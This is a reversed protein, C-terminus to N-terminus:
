RQEGEGRGRKKDEYMARDARAIWEEPSIGEAADTQVLGYSFPTGWQRRGAERLERLRVGAEAQVCGPMLVLFEDGGYRALVDNPRLGARLHTSFAQLYQDGAQHGLRDNIQKLGDLDLFALSFAEGAELMVNMNSLAYRRTYAGTLADVYAEREMRATRSKQEAEAEKLRLREEKLYTSRTLHYIHSAFLVVMLLLLINSAMLFLIALIAPLECIAPISDLLVSVACFWAFRSLLHFEESNGGMARIAEASLYRTLGFALLLGLVAVLALSGIRISSDSLATRIDQGTALAMLGLIILHPAAYILFRLNALMWDWARNQGRVLEQTFGAGYILAYFFPLPIYFVCMLLIPLAMRAYALWLRRTRGSRDPLHVQGSLRATVQTYGVMLILLGATMVFSGPEM